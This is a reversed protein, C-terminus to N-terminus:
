VDVEGGGSRREKWEMRGGYRGYRGISGSERTKKRTQLLVTHNSILHCMLIAGSHAVPM